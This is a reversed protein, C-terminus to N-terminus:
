VVYVPVRYTDILKRAMPPLQGEDMTVRLEPGAQYAHVGAMTLDLLPRAMIEAVILALQKVGAPLNALTCYGFNGTVRVSNPYTPFWYRGAYSAKHITTYPKGKAPANRPELWYDTPTAWTYEYTGDGNADTVVETLSLFDDIELSLVDCRPDQSYYRTETPNDADIDSSAYFRHGLIDDVWRSAGRVVDMWARDRDNDQIYLREKIESVTAYLFETM